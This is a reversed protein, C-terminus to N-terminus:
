AMYRGFTPHFDEKWYDDFVAKDERAVFHLGCYHALGSKEGLAKGAEFLVRCNTHDM